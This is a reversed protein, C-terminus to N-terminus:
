SRVEVIGSGSRGPHTAYPDDESGAMVSRTHRKGLLWWALLSAALAATEAAPGFATPRHEAGISAVSAVGLTAIASVAAGASLWSGTFGLTDSLHVASTWLLLASLGSCALSVVVMVCAARLKHVKASHPVLHWRDWLTLKHSDLTWWPLIMALSCGLCAISMLASGVMTFNQTRKQAKDLAM